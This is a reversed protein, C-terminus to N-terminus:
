EMMFEVTGFDDAPGWRVHTMSISRMLVYSSYNTRSMIEAFVM